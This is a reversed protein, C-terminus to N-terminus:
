TIRIGGAVSEKGNNNSASLLQMALVNRFCWKGMNEKRREKKFISPCFDIELNFNAPKDHNRPKRQKAGFEFLCFISKTVDVQDLTSSTKVLPLSLSPSLSIKFHCAIIFHVSRSDFLEVRTLVLFSLVVFTRSNSPKDTHGTNLAATM